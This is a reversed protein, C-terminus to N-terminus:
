NNKQILIQKINMNMKILFKIKINLKKKFKIIMTKKQKFIKILNFVIMKYIKLM